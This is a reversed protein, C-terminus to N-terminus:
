YSNARMKNNAISHKVTHLSNNIVANLKSGEFKSGEESYANRTLVSRM